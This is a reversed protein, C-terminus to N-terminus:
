ADELEIWELGNLKAVQRRIAFYDYCRDSCIYDEQSDFIVWGDGRDEIIEYRKPQPPPFQPAPVVQAM